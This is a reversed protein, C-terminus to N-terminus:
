TLAYMTAFMIIWVVDLFHWYMALHAVGAHNAATYSGLFSKVAVIGLPILGGVVHLAHIVSLVVFGWMAFRYARYQPDDLLASVGQLWESWCIVQLGLFIVGLAGTLLMMFRLGGQSDRRIFSRALHVTVSSVLMIVTSAWLLSPLPPLDPFPAADAGLLPDGAVDRTKLRAIILVYGVMTAAFLMALTILFVIMGMSGTSVREFPDRFQDAPGVGADTQDSSVPPRQNENGANM